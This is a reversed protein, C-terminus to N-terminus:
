VLKDDATKKVFENKVVYSLKSLDIRNTELKGIDLKDTESKLRALDVKKAVKSTHVGTANKLDAKTAYNPLYLEVKLNGRLSREKSFYENM